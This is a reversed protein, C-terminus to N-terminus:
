KKPSGLISVKTGKMRTLSSLMPAGEPGMLKSLSSLM